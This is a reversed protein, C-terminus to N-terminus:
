TLATPVEGARLNGLLAPGGDEAERDPGKSCRQQSMHNSLAAQLGLKGM